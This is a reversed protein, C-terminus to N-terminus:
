DSKVLNWKIFELYFNQYNTKVECKQNSNKERKRKLNSCVHSVFIYNVRRRRKVERVYGILSTAIGWELTM